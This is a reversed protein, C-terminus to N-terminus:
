RLTQQVHDHLGPNKYKFNLSLFYHTCGLRALQEPIQEIKSIFETIYLFLTTLGFQFFEWLFDFNKYYFEWLMKPM